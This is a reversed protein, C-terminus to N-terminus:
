STSKDSVPNCDLRAVSGAMWANDASSDSLQPGSIRYKTLSGRCVDCVDAFDSSESLDISDLFVSFICQCALGQTDREARLVWTLGRFKEAPESITSHGTLAAIRSLLPKRDAATFLLYRLCEMFM